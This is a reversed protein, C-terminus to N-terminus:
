RHPLTPAQAVHAAPPGRRPKDRCVAGGVKRLVTRGVSRWSIRCRRCRAAREHHLTCAAGDCRRQEGCKKDIPKRSDCPGEPTPNEARCIRAPAKQRDLWCSQFIPLPLMMFLASGTDPFRETHLAKPLNKKGPGIVTKCAENQKGNSGNDPCNQKEETNSNM